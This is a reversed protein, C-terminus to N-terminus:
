AENVFMGPEMWGNGRGACNGAAWNVADVWEDVHCPNATYACMYSVATGQYQVFVSNAPFQNDGGAACASYFANWSHQYFDDQLLWDGGPCWPYTGSPWNYRKRLRSSTSAADHKPIALPPSNTVNATIDTWTIQSDGDISIIYSGDALDPLEITQSLASGSAASLFLISSLKM